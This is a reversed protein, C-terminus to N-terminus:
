WTSATNEINEIQQGRLAASRVMYPNLGDTNLYGQLLKLESLVSQSDVGLADLIQEPSKSGDFISM